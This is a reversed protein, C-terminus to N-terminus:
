GGENAFCRNLSVFLFVFNFSNSYTEVKSALEMEKSPHSLKKSPVRTRYLVVVYRLFMMCCEFIGIM